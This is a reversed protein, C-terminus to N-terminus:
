AELHATTEPRAIFAVANRGNDQASPTSTDRPSAMIVDAGDAGPTADTRDAVTLAAALALVSAAILAIMKM